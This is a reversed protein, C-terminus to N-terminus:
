QPTPNATIDELRKLIKRTGNNIKEETAAPDELAQKQLGIDSFLGQLKAVRQEARQNALTLEQMVIQQKMADEAMRNITDTNAKNAQELKINDSVLTTITSYAYWGMSSIITLLVLVAILRNIM